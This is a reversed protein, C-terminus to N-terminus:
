WSAGTPTARAPVPRCRHTTASFTLPPSRCTNATRTRGRAASWTSATAPRWRACRRIGRPANTSRWWCTWANRRTTTATPMNSTAAPGSTISITTTRMGWRIPASPRSIRRRVSSTTTTPSISAPISRRACWGATSISKTPWPATHFLPVRDLVSVGDRDILTIWAVSPALSQQFDGILRDARDVGHATLFASRNRAISIFGNTPLVTGWPITYNVEEVRMGGLHYARTMSRNHLEIFESGPLAPHALVENILIDGAMPQLVSSTRIRIGASELRGGDADRAELVFSNIGLDLPLTLEWSRVSTWLVATPLSSGNVHLTTATVPALGKLTVFSGDITADASTFNTIGFEPFLGKNALVGKVFTARNIVHTRLSPFDSLTTVGNSSRSLVENWAEIRRLAQSSLWESGEMVARWYARQVIGRSFFTALKQDNGAMESEPPLFDLPDRSVGWGTDFDWPIHKWKGQPSKYLMANAVDNYGFGDQDTSLHRMALVRVFEDVDVHSEIAASQLAPSAINMTDYLRFLEAFSDDRPGQDKREWLGRYANRAYQGEIKSIFGFTPLRGGSSSLIQDDYDEEKIAEHLYGDAEDPFQSRIWEGNPTQADTYLRGRQNGNMFWHVYRTNLVPARMADGLAMSLKTRQYTTHDQGPNTSDMKFGVDGLHRSHDPLHFVYGAEVGNIPHTYGPRSFGSGSFRIGAGHIVRFRDWVFTAPWLQNCMKPQANWRFVNTARIWVRYDGFDGGFPEEGFGVLALQEGHPDPWPLFRDGSDSSSRVRYVLLRGKPQGPLSASYEGDGARADPAVGDDHMAIPNFPEDGDLKWELVPPRAGARAESRCSITVPEGAAPLIPMHTLELLAPPSSGPVVWRSNRRGPTGLNSPINLPASLEFGMGKLVFILRPSGALWRAQFRITVPNRNTLTRGLNGLVKDGVMGGAAQSRLHYCGSNDVGGTPEFSSLAHNGWEKWFRNTESFDPNKVLNTVTSGIIEVNDVLTEGRHPLWLYFRGSPVVVSDLMKGSAEFTTWPAKTSEDSSQWNMALTNDSETDVLELSSGDGESWSGWDSSDRYIVSNEEVYHTTGDAAKIPRSLTLKEGKDSLNGSYDGFTRDPSLEPHRVLLHTRNKAIVLFDGAALFTEEPCEFSIGDTMRWRSLDVTAASRNYLEIYEDSESESIPHYMIENIVISSRRVAANTLGASASALFRWNGEGDPSLGQTMGPLMASTKQIDLIAVGNSSTLAITGDLVGFGLKSELLSLYGGAPLITGTPFRYVAGGELRHLTAGSLDHPQSTSNYLELFTSGGSGASVENIVVQHSLSQDREDIRWPNGHIHASAEWATPEAEGLDPATLVLSHGAGAAALPWPTRNNFPVELLITGRRNLLRVTGGDDNLKGQYPGLLAGEKTYFSEIEPPNHAIVVRQHPGVTTGSPFLFRIDGSLQYGSLDVAVPDTNYIEIFELDKGSSLGGSPPHYHIESIILPTSRSSPHLQRHSDRSDNVAAEGLPRSIGLLLLLLSLRLPRRARSSLHTAVMRRVDPFYM